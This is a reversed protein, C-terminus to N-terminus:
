VYTVIYFKSVVNLTNITQCSCLCEELLLIRNSDTLQHLITLAICAVVDKQVDKKSRVMGLTERSGHGTGMRTLIVHKTCGVIAWLGIIICVLISPVVIVYIESGCSREPSRAVLTCEQQLAHVYKSTEKFYLSLEM